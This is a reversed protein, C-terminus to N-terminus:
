DVIGPSNHFYGFDERLSGFPDWAVPLTGGINVQDTRFCAWPSDLKSPRVFAFTRDFPRDAVTGVLTRRAFYTGIKGVEAGTRGGMGAINLFDKHVQAVTPFYVIEIQLLYQRFHPPHPCDLHHKLGEIDM